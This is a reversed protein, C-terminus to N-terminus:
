KDFLAYIVYRKLIQSLYDSKIPLHYAIKYKFQYKEVEQILKEEDYFIKHDSDAQYGKKGPVAVVLRGNQKLVRYIESLTPQPNTLHELVNDLIVSDFSQDPFPFKEKEILYAELNKQKCFEVNHPNIDLGASNKRYELFDGIGCGVDLVKGHMYRNVKPYLYFNRYIKGLFSRQNLYNFYDKHDNEVQSM